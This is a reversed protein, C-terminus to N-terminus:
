SPPKAGGKAASDKEIKKGAKGIRRPSAQPVARKPRTKPRPRGVGAKRRYVNTPQSTAEGSAAARFVHTVPSANRSPRKAQTPKLKPMPGLTPEGDDDKPAEQEAAAELMKAESEERLILAIQTIEPVNSVQDLPLDESLLKGIEYFHYGDDKRVIAGFPHVYILTGGDLKEGKAVYESTKSRNNTVLLEDTGYRLVAAIYKVKRDPDEQKPPPPTKKPGPKKPEPEKVAPPQRIPPTPRRIEQKVYENFPKRDWIMALPLGEHAVVQDPQHLATFDIMDVAAPDKPPVLIQYTATLTILDKQKDAAKASAPALKVDKFRGVYPLEYCQKLFRISKNLPGEAAIHFSVTAVQSKRDVSPKKPSVKSDASELGVKRLMGELRAQIVNRVRMPDTGGTREVFEKYRRMSVDFLDQKDEWDALDDELEAIENSVDFLPKLTLPYVVKAVLVIGALSGVITALRKERTNM